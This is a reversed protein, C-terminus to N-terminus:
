AAAAHVRATTAVADPKARAHEGRNQPQTDNRDALSQRARRAQEILALGPLPRASLRIRAM